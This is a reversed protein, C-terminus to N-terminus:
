EQQRRSHIFGLRLFAIRTRKTQLASARQLILRLISAKSM